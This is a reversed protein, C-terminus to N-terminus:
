GRHGWAILVDLLTHGNHKARYFFSHMLRAKEAPENQEALDHNQRIKGENDYPM